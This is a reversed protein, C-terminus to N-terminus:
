CTMFVFTLSIKSDLKIGEVRREKMRARLLFPLVCPGSTRLQKM